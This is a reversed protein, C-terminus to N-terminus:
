WRGGRDCEGWLIYGGGRAGMGSGDSEVGYLIGFEVARGVDWVDMGSGDSEIGCLIGFAVTQRMGLMDMGPGDSEIGYLIGFRATWGVCTM